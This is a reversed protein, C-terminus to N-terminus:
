STEMRMTIDGELDTTAIIIGTSLWKSIMMLTKRTIESSLEMRSAEEDGQIDGREMTKGTHDRRERKEKKDLSATMMTSVVFEAEEEVVSCEVDM